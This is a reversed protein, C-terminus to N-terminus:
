TPPLIRQENQADDREARLVSLRPISTAASKESEDPEDHSEAVASPDDDPGRRRGLWAALGALAALGM